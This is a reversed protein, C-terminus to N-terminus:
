VSWSSSMRRPSRRSAIAGSTPGGYGSWCLARSPSTSTPGSTTGPGRRYAELLQEIADLSQPVDGFKARELIDELDMTTTM